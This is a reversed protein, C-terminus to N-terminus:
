KNGYLISRICRIVFTTLTINEQKIRKKIDLYLENSIRLTIHKEKTM